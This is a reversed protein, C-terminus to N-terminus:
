WTGLRYVGITDTGDGNWDGVVPIQSRAGWSFAVDVPGPDNSNRLFWTGNRFVGITDTGDGNWDGVVPLDGRLTPLSGRPNPAPM